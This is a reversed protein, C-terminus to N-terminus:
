RGPLYFLEAGYWDFEAGDRLRQQCKDGRRQQQDPIRGLHDSFQHLLRSGNYLCRRLFRGSHRFGQRRWFFQRRQWRHLHLLGTILDRAPVSELKAIFANSGAGSASATNTVQFAGSTTPFDTSYTTGTVYVKGSSDLAIGAVNDGGVNDTGSGGSYTSYILATGTSNLKTVFGNRPM